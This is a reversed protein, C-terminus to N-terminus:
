RGPRFCEFHRDVSAYMFTMSLHADEISCHAEDAEVVLVPACYMLNKTTGTALSPQEVVEYSFNKFPIVDGPLLEFVPIDILNM